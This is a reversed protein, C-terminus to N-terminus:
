VGVLEKKVMRWNPDPDETPIAFYDLLYARCRECYDAMEPRDLDMISGTVAIIEGTVPDPTEIQLLKQKLVRHAFDKESREYQMALLYKAFPDVLCAFYWRRQQQSLTHRTPTIKVDYWGKLPAFETSLERKRSPDDFNVPREISPRPM